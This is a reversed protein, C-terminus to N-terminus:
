EDVLGAGTLRGLMTLDEDGESERLGEERKETELTAPRAEGVGIEEVFGGERGPERELVRERGAEEREFLALSEGLLAGAERM